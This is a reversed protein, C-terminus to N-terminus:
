FQKRPDGHCFKFKIGSGCPCPENRGIKRPTIVNWKPEPQHLYHQIAEELGQREAKASMPQVPDGKQYGPKLTKLVEHAIQRVSALEVNPVPTTSGNATVEIGLSNYRSILAYVEDLEPDVHAGGDQNAMSLVLDKRSLTREAADRIVVANWWPEFELMEVDGSVDLRPRYRTKEGEDFSVRISTLGHYSRMVNGPFDDAASDYFRINKKGLQDLLSHSNKTDHLLIRLTVALRCAEDVFGNDFSESSRELFNLQQILQADLDAQTRPIKNPKAM